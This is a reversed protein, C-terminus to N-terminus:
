RHGGGGGGAVAAAVAAVAPQSRGGRRSAEAGPQASARIDTTAIRGRRAAMGFAASLAGTGCQLRQTCGASQGNAASEARSAAAGRELSRWERRRRPNALESARERRLPQIRRRECLARRAIRPTTPGHRQEWEPQRPRRQFQEPSHLQQQRDHQPQGLRSAMGMRGMWGLRRRFLAGDLNGTWIRLLAGESSLLTIGIRMRIIFRRAGSTPRITIRCYMMQPDAPEIDIIPRGSDNV